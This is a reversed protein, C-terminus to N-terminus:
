IFWVYVMSGLSVAVGSKWTTWSNWRPELTLLEQRYGWRSSCPVGLIFFTSTKRLKQTSFIDSLYGLVEHKKKKKPSFSVWCKGFILTKWYQFGMKEDRPSSCFSWSESVGKIQRTKPDSSVRISLTFWSKRYSSLNPSQVCKLGPVDPVVSPATLKLIM